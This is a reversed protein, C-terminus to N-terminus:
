EFFLFISVIICWTENTARYSPQYYGADCATQSGSGEPCYYGPGCQDGGVGSPIVTYCSIFTGNHKFIILHM